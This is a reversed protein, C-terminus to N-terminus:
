NGKKFLIVKLYGFLSDDILVKKGVASNYIEYDAGNISVREALKIANLDAQRIIITIAGVSVLGLDKIVLKELTEQRTIAKIKIPNQQTKTYAVNYKTNYDASKTLSRRLYVYVDESYDRFIIDAYHKTQKNLNM